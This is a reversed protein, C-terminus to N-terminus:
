ARWGRPRAGPPAALADHPSPQRPGDVWPGWYGLAPWSEPRQYYGLMCLDRLGRYLLRRVPGGASLRVLCEQRAPAPLTSLRGLRLALAPVAHEAATLLLRIEARLWAPLKSRLAM